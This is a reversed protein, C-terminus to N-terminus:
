EEQFFVVRQLSAVHDSILDLLRVLESITGRSESDDNEFQFRETEVIFFALARRLALTPGQCDAPAPKAQRRCRV